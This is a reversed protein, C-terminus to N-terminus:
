EYTYGFLTIDNIFADNIIDVSESNYMDHYTNIKFFKGSHTKVNSRMHPLEPIVVEIGLKRMINNFSNSLNSFEIVYDVSIFGDNDKMYYYCEDINRVGDHERSYQSGKHSYRNDVRPIYEPTEKDVFAMKVWDNFEVDVYAVSIPNCVNKRYYSVMRSWPNRCISFTTYEKLNVVKSLEEYTWHQSHPFSIDEHCFGCDNPYKFGYNELASNICNGGTKNAHIFVFKSPSHQNSIV